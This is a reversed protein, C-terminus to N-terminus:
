RSKWARLQLRISPFWEGKQKGSKRQDYVQVQITFGDMLMDKLEHLVAPFKDTKFNLEVTEDKM